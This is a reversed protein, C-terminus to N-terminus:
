PALASRRDAAEQTRERCSGNRGARQGSASRIDRRRPDHVRADRFAHDRIAARARRALSSHPPTEKFHIADVDTRDTEAVTGEVVHSANDPGTRLKFAHLM